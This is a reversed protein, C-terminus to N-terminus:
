DGSQEQGEEEVFLIATLPGYVWRRTYRDRFIFGTACVGSNGGKHICVDGEIYEYSDLSFSGPEISFLFDGVKVRSIKEVEISLSM